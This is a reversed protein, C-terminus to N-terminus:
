LGGNGWVPGPDGVHGHSFPPSPQAPHIDIPIVLDVKRISRHQRLRWSNRRIAPSDGEQGVIRRLMAILDHHDRGGTTLRDLNRVHRSIARQLPRRRAIRHGVHAACVARLVDPRFRQIVANRALDCMKALARNVPKRPRPRAPLERDHAPVGRAIRHQNPRDLLRLDEIAVERLDAAHFAIHNQGDQANPVVTGIM